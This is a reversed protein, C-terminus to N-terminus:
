TLPAAVNGDFWARLTAYGRHVRQKIAAKTTDLVAAAESGSFGFLRTLAIADRYPAPLQILAERMELEAHEGTNSESDNPLTGESTLVEYRDRLRRQEDLLTRKAIVYLWPLVPEGMAYSARARFLKLFTAQVVDEAQEQDRTWRRVAARLPPAAGRYLAAFAAEDGGVYSEMLKELDGRRPDRAQM